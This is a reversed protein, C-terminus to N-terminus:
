YEDSEGRINEAIQQCRGLFLSDNPRPLILIENLEGRSQRQSRTPQQTNRPQYQFPQLNHQQMQSAPRSSLTPRLSLLQIAAWEDSSDNNSSQSLQQQQSSSQTMSGGLGALKPVVNLRNKNVNSSTPM